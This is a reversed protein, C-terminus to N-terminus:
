ISQLYDRNEPSFGHWGIGLLYLDKQEYKMQYSFPM